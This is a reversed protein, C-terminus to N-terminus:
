QSRPQIHHNLALGDPHAVIFQESIQGPHPGGPPISCGLEHRAVPVEAMNLVLFERWDDDKGDRGGLYEREAPSGASAVRGM